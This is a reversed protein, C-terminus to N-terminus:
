KLILFANHNCLLLFPPKIGDMGNKTLKVRHRVLDPLSILITLPRLYWKTRVPPAAMDFREFDKRM